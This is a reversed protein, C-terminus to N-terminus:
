TESFRPVLPPRRVKKKSGAPSSAVACPLAVPSSEEEEKGM